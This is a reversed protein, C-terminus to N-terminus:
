GLPRGEPHCPASPVLRPQGIDGHRLCAAVSGKQPLPLGPAWVGGLEGSHLAVGVRPALEGALERLYERAAEDEIGLAECAREAAERLAEGRGQASMTGLRRAIEDRGEEAILLGRPDEGLLARGIANTAVPEYLNVLLEVYDPSTRELVRVCADREFRRLFDAEILLRRLYEIIYDVGALTEPVPHCLPYDFDCAIEHAMSRFDYSKPFNGISALTDQLSISPIAPMTAVVEQWLAAALEVKREVDTLRRRFEEELDISLLRDPVEPREPDIGLVFCVSRFLDVAVHKPVSTSDGQTYIATRRELLRLFRKQFVAVDEHAALGHADDAFSALTPADEPQEHPLPETKEAM